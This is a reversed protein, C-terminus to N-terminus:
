WEKSDKEYENNLRQREVAPDLGEPPSGYIKIGDRVEQSTWEVEPLSEPTPIIGEISPDGSVPYEPYSFALGPDNLEELWHADESEIRDRAFYNGWFMVGTILASVVLGWKTLDNILHVSGLIIFAMFVVM